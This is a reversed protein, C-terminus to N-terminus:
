SLPFFVNQTTASFEWATQAHETREEKEKNKNKKKWKGKEKETLRTWGQFSAEFNKVVGM